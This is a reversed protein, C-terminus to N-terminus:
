TWLDSIDSPRVLVDRPEKVTVGAVPLDTPQVRSGSVRVWGNARAAVEAKGSQRDVDEWTFWGRGTPDFGPNASYNAGYTLKPALHDEPKEGGPGVTGPKVGLVFTAPKDALGPLYNRRLLAVASQDKPPGHPMQRKYFDRVVGRLQEVRSQDRIGWVADSTTYGPLAAGETVQILGGRPTGSKIHPASPDGGSEHGIVGALGGSMPDLGIEHQVEYLARREEPAWRDLYPYAPAVIPDDPAVGFVPALHWPEATGAGSLLPRRGPRRLTFAAIGGALVLGVAALGAAHVPKM